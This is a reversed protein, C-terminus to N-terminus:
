AALRPAGAPRPSAPGEIIETFEEDTARLFKEKKMEARTLKRDEVRPPEPKDAFTPVM